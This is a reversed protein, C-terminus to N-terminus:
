REIRHIVTRLAQLANSGSHMSQRANERLAQSLDAVLNHIGMKEVGDRYVNRTKCSFECGARAFGSNIQPHDICIM